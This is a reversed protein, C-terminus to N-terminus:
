RKATILTRDLNAEDLQTNGITSKYFDVGYLNAGRLDTGTLRAKRLSGGLLNIAAMGAESFDCKSFDANKANAYTLTANSFCCRNIQAKQLNTQSFDTGTLDTDEWSSHSIDAQSFDCGQLNSGEGARSNKLYAGKFNVSQGQVGYLRIEEAQTGALDAGNLTAGTLDAAFLDTEIFRTDTLDAQEFLTQHAKMQSCDAGTLIAQSFIADTLDAQRLNALSFDASTFDSARCDAGILNAEALNAGSASVGCLGAQNLNAATLDAGTLIANDLRAQSLNSQGLNVNELVANTLDIQSLDCGSLDLGSLDQNAFSQGSKYGELVQERTLKETEALPEGEEPVPEAPIEELKAVDAKLAALAAVVTLHEEFIQRMQDLFGPDDMGASKFFAVFEDTNQPGPKPEVTSEPPTTELDVGLDELQKQLQKEQDAMSQNMKELIEDPSPEEGHLEPMTEDPGAPADLEDLDVGLVKTAQKLEDEKQAIQAEIAAIAAMLGAPAVMKLAPEPVDPEAPEPPPSEELSPTEETPEEEVPEELMAQYCEEPKPEEQLMEHFALLHSVNEAEDDAVRATGHWILLGMEQHPILYLTDPRNSIEIFQETDGDQRQIFLRCRLGPLQSSFERKEPHMGAIRITENGQFWDDMRQDEPALNFYKFDFDDPLGPWRDEFWKDDFTGLDKLRAPWDIHMPGFGAPRPRDDASATVGGPAHINPLPVRIKGDETTVPVTGKGSPNDEHDPGGFANEWTIDMETFPEPKIHALHFGGAKRFRDGVVHVQKEISGVRFSAEAAQVAQGQPAFCKGLVLVEGMPKPMALDLVQGRGLAATARDWMDAEDLLRGSDDLAFGALVAVSLIDGGKYGFVRFLISLTDDKLIKM